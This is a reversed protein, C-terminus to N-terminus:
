FWTITDEKGIIVAGISDQVAKVKQQMEEYTM